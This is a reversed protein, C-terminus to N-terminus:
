IAAGARVIWLQFNDDLHQAFTKLSLIPLAPDVERVTRRTRPFATSVDRGLAVVGGVTGAAGVVLYAAGFRRMRGADARIAPAVLM